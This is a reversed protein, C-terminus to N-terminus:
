GRRLVRAVISDHSAKRRNFEAVKLARELPTSPRPSPKPPSPTKDKPANVAVVAYQVSRVADLVSTLVAVEPTWSTLSPGKSEPKEDPNAARHAEIAEAMMRAHEEDMSVSASYWSHGPLRDLLDLLLRWRRDRWLAGLDANAYAHLDYTIPSRYNDVLYALRQANRFDPLEWAACWRDFVLARLHDPIDGPTGPVHGLMLAGLVWQYHKTRPDPLAILEGKHRIHFHGGGHELLDINKMSM